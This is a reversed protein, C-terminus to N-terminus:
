SIGRFESFEDKLELGQLPSFDLRDGRLIRPPHDHGSAMRTSGARHRLITSASIPPAQHRVAPALRAILFVAGAGALRRGDAHLEERIDPLYEATLVLFVVKAVDQKTVVADGRSFEDAEEAVHFVTRPGFPLVTLWQRLRPEGAEQFLIPNYRELLLYIALAEASVETGVDRVVPLSVQLPIRLKLGQVRASASRRLPKQM